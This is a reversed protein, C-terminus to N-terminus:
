FHCPVDLMKNMKGARFRWKLPIEMAINSSVPPYVCGIKQTLRKSGLDQSTRYSGYEEHPKGAIGPTGQFVVYPHPDFRKHGPSSSM